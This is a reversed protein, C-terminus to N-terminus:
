LLAATPASAKPSLVCTSAWHSPPAVKIPPSHLGGHGVGAGGVPGGGSSCWQRGPLDGVSGEGSSGVRVGCRGPLPRRVPQRQRRDLAAVLLQHAEEGDVRPLPVHQRHPGGAVVGDVPSVARDLLDGGGTLLDAAMLFPEAVVEPSRQLAERDAREVVRAPDVSDLSGEGNIHGAFTERTRLVPDLLVARSAVHLHHEGRSEAGVGIAVDVAAPAPAFGHDLRHPGLMAVVVGGDRGGAVAAAAVPLHNTM